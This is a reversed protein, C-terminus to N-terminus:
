KYTHKSVNTIFLRVRKHKLPTSRSHTRNEGPKVQSSTVGCGGCPGGEEAGAKASSSNVLTNLVFLLSKVVLCSLAGTPMSVPSLCQNGVARREGLLPQLCVDPEPASAGVM